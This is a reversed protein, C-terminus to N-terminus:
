VIPYWIVNNGIIRLYEKWSSSLPREPRQMKTLQGV